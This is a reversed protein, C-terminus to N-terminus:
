NTNIVDELKKISYNLKKLKDIIIPLAKGTQYGRGNIHFILISGPNTQSVVWKVLKDASVKKDPDGSPFTWHVVQYGKEQCLKVKEDNANGAPFRYFKTERGTTSKILMETSLLDEVFESDKMKESHQNHVFSHNEFELFNHVSLKNLIKANRKVFNGSLFFTVPLKEKLIFNLITSDLFSPTKTECADFTLAVVKSSTTFKTIIGVQSNQSKVNNNVLFLLLIFVFLSEM